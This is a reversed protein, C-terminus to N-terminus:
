DIGITQYITAAAAPNMSLNLAIVAKVTQLDKSASETEVQEKQVQVNMEVVHVAWPMKTYFGAPKMEGTVAGMRLVVGINGADITGWSGFAILLCILLAVFACIGGIIRNFM